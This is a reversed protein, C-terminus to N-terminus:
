GTRVDWLCVSPASNVEALIVVSGNMERDLRYKGEPITFVLTEGGTRIDWGKLQRVEEILLEDNALFSVMGAAPRSREERLSEADVVRMRDAERLVLRTGDPSFLGGTAGPLFGLDKGGVVDRLRLGRHGDRHDEYAMTTSGPRFGFRGVASSGSKKQWEVIH